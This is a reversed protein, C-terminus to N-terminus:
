ILPELVHESQGPSQPRILKGQHIGIFTSKRHNASVHQGNYITGM